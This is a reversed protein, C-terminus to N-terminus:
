TAPAGGTDMIVLDADLSSGDNFEISQMENEANKVIKTLTKNTHIKVGAEKHQTLYMEGIEKGLM